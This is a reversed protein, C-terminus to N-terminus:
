KITSGLKHSHWFYYESERVICYELSM